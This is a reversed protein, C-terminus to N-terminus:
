GRRHTPAQDGRRGWRVREERSAESDERLGPIARRRHSEGTGEMGEVFREVRSWTGEEDVEAREMGELRRRAQSLEARMRDLEEAGILVVSARGRVGISVEEGGHSARKVLDSLQRRAESITLAM